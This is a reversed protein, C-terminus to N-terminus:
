GPSRCPNPALSVDTRRSGPGRGDAAPHGAPEGLVDVAALGGEAPRLLGALVVSLVAAAAALLGVLPYGALSGDPATHLLRGGALSALGMAVQQVSANVSLFSGRHRPAASATILAMAPVMRGSSVIMMLTTVALATALSARPLNTVALFPAVTLLALVRFVPLKGWLDSLRGALPTTLLTAGGGFLYVLTLEWEQRGVNTLLYTPLYPVVLFSSLVLATTLAYASLHTPESMVVWTRRVDLGHRGRALHGRLPPLVLWVVVLM